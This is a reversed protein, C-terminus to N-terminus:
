PSGRHGSSEEGGAGEGGGEGQERGRGRERSLDLLLGVELEIAPDLEFRGVSGHREVAEADSVGAEHQLVTLLALQSPPVSPRGLRAHYCAAFAEDSFLRPAAQALQAHFSRVDLELPYVNGVDFLDRQTSRKGMM